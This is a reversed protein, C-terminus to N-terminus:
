ATKSAYRLQIIVLGQPTVGTVSKAAPFRYSPQFEVIFPVEDILIEQVQAYLDARKAMDAEVIAADLLTDVAPNSYGVRKAAAGGTQGFPQAYTHVDAYDPAWSSMVFQLKGARFDALRQTPDMPVLEVTLGKIQQIDSQLKSALIERDVGGPSIGGADFTLKISAEGLGSSDFLEQAKALDTVIKKDAVLDEGALGVPVVTAPRVGAGALLGEIIGDYDISAAIAQRVAKNALAGGVEETVNLALYEYALSPGEIIQLGENSAASEYSDPDVAYALDVEGTELLQLQTNLDSVNRWIIKAFTPAEGYYEGTPELVVEGNVDWATLKYPGTGLSNGENIWDTLKDTVDADAASSGGSEIGAKSDMVGRAASTPIGNLAANPTLLKLELTNDDVATVAEFFDSFLFSANGKLNVLREFSWVWDAATCINGTNHFKMGPRLAITATLGDASLVPLEIAGLPEINALQSGDPIHYLTEYILNQAAQDNVEYIRGPDLYLWSNAPLNDVIILTTPDTQNASTLARGASQPAASASESLLTSAAIAGAGLAVARSLFQRRSINGAEFDQVLERYRLDTM